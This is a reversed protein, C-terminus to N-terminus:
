CKKRWSKAHGRGLHELRGKNKLQGLVHCIMGHSVGPCIRELESVTFEGSLGDVATEVLVTMAGRPSMAERVRREFEGYARRLVGFFYTLWPVLDHKSERWGKCSKRLAMYYDDRSDEILDELSICKGIEFGHQYLCLLGLLRAVRGNARRFPHLCLFDFVLAGVALLPHVEQQNL